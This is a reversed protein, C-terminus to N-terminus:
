DDAPGRSRAVPFLEAASVVRGFADHHVAHERRFETPAELGAAAALSTLAARLTIVFNTVRFSKEEVVLAEMLEEDTTAVGVPCRNTHCQQAQICGVSIMLGRAINVADAGFALALAIADPSSLKGSAFLKVRDRIGARRLADDVEVIGSRLPLGMTDAMEQYTAGSGGEGGDVTLWDPGDDRAALAAALPDISGPGGVVIKIGVPKGGRRRMEGVHDLADDLSEFIPFRNPSDIDIGVPVGRIAAIEATVKSGSVHGGRIKAGQHFKLEFGVVQSREAHREFAEWDWGGSADRVGFLGPGIQFVIAGGGVLHHEALGGEGTNMWTGTARALGHSLAEIAHRGLSGYSMASMGILGGLRWPHPLGAGVVVAHSDPLTWPSVRAPEIEEDRSFLGEERVVYRRSEVRPERVAAMDAKLTPLLANRLYWGPQEFDRKSGFSISTALYKGAKVIHQYQERSFPKGQFDADFLYQRMEPGVHEFLYRLRGLVPFNRLVAHQRQHRDFWYLGGLFVVPGLFMGLLLVFILTNLWDTMRTESFHLWLPAHRPRAATM